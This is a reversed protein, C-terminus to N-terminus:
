GTQSCLEIEKDWTINPYQAGVSGDGWMDIMGFQTDAAQVFFFSTNWKSARGSTEFGPLIRDRAKRIVRNSESALLYDVSATTPNENITSSKPNTDKDNASSLCTEGEDSEETM